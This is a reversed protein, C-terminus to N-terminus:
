WGKSIDEIANDNKDSITKGNALLIGFALMLLGIHRYNAMNQKINTSFSLSLGSTQPYKQNHIMTNLKMFLM